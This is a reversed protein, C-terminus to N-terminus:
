DEVSFLRRLSQGARVISVEVGTPTDFVAAEAAAKPIPQSSLDTLAEGALWGKGPIWARFALGSVGNVLPQWILRELRVEPKFGFSQWQSFGRELVGRNLRYVVRQLQAPQEGSGERMLVMLLPDNQSDGAVFGVPRQKLRFLRVPWSRRLDQDLQAFATSLARMEDSAATIRERSTIVSDLGRFCLVALIGMLAIAVLLELLTFGQAHRRRTSRGSSSGCPPQNPASM